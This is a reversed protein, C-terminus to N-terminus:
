VNKKNYHVEQCSLSLEDAVEQLMDCENQLILIPAGIELMKLIRNIRNVLPIFKEDNSKAAAKHTTRLDLEEGGKLWQKCRKLQEEILLKVQALEDNDNSISKQIFTEM